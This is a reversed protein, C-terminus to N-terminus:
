TAQQWPAGNAAAPLLLHGSLWKVEALEDSRRAHQRSREDLNANM